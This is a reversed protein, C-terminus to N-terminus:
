DVFYYNLNYNHDTTKTDERLLTASNILFFNYVLSDNGNKSVPDDWTLDLHYWKNDLYVANWVHTDSSVKYNDIDMRDLFVAMTDAYGSCIGYGQFLVGNITTSDYSSTGNDKRVVDYRANDIIYDHIAKIKTKDDMNSTINEDMIEDVKQNIKKIDEKSYIHTVYVTIVGYDDYVVKVESYSNFPHVYNNIASLLAQNKSIDDLDTLCAAYSDDCYFTFEDWGKDFITYFVNVMENYNSPVYDDTIQVFKYDRNRTYENGDKIVLEPKRHTFGELYTSIKATIKNFNLGIMVIVIIVVLISIINKVKTM